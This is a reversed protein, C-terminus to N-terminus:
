APVPEYAGVAPRGWSLRGAADIRWPLSAGKCILASGAAPRYSSSLKADGIVEGTITANADQVQAAAGGSFYSRSVEGIGADGDGLVQVGDGIFVCDQVGVKETTFASTLEPAYIANGGLVSTCDVFTCGRATMQSNFGVTRLAGGYSPSHCRLFVGDYFRSEGLNANDTVGGRGSAGGGFALAVTACDAFYPRWMYLDTNLGAWLAGGKGAKMRQFSADYAHVECINAQDHWAYIASGDPVSDGAKTYAYCDAWHTDRVFVSTDDFGSSLVRGLIGSSADPLGCGNISCGAMEFLELDRVLWLFNGWAAATVEPAQCDELQVRKMFVRNGSSGASPTFAFTLGNTSGFANSIDWRMRRFKVGLLHVTMGVCVAAFRFLSTRPQGTSDGTWSAYGGVPGSFTIGKVVIKAGVDTASRCYLSSDDDLTVVCADCDEDDDENRLIFSKENHQPVIANYLWVHDTSKELVVEDGNTIAEVAARVDTYYADYGAPTLGTPSVYRRAM